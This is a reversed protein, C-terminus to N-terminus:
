EIETNKDIIANIYNKSSGEVKLNISSKWYLVLGGNRGVRPVVWRHDFDISRQVVELRAEDTLTEVLFVVPPDKARIIKILERGTRLNGIGSCNWTLCSM